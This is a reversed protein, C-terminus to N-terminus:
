ECIVPSSKQDFPNTRMALSFMYPYNARLHNMYALWELVILGYVRKVDKVLHEVDKPPLGSVDPRNELEETLHFVAKLLDTFTEHELLNPNESLRLMFDRKASLFCKLQALDIKGADVGYEYGKLKASVARFEEETWDKGLKLDGKVTELRPDFDSLHALLRTGVESFFIGIVMNLSQLRERKQRSEMLGELIITVILVSIPLFALDGLFFIAEHELDRFILYHIYYLALSSLLLITGLKLQWATARM